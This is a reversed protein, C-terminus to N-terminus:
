RSAATSGPRRRRRRSTPRAPIGSPFQAPARRDSDHDHTRLRDRDPELVPPHDDARADPAPTLRDEHRWDDPRVRGRLHVDVGRCALRRLWGPRARLGCRHRVGHGLDRAPASTRSPRRGVDRELRRRCRESRTRSRGRSRRRRSGCHRSRWPRTSVPRHGQCGPAEPDGARLRHQVVRGAEDRPREVCRVRLDDRQGTARRQHVARRQRRPPPGGSRRRRQHVDRRRGGAGGACRGTHVYGGVGGGGRRVPQAFRRLLRHVDGRQGHILHWEPVHVVLWRHLLCQGTNSSEAGAAPRDRGACGSRHGPCAVGTVQTLGSM